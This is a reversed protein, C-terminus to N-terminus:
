RTSKSLDADLAVINKNQAGLEVLAKGYAERLSAMEM